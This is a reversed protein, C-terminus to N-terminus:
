YSYFGEGSKRGLKGAAAMERMLKPPDHDPNGSEAFLSEGIAISVDLGVFDTLKLPGMPHGAGLSMCTDVDEASLGTREMMRVADFLYPFLLRNVVFGANDTVEVGNKGLAACFARGRDAVGDALEAPFCLEVLDMRPVPNFVHFGFFRDSIGAKTAIDAIGLSSSTTALDANPCAAALRTHMEVKIETDEAIAEVVVDCEALDAVDLTVTARSADAGELKGCLKELTATARDASEQSRALVVVDAITTICTATGLAIAGTGAVAPKSYGNTSSM